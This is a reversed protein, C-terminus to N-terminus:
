SASGVFFFYFSDLSNKKILVKLLTNIERLSTIPFGDKEKEMKLRKLAVVDSTKKDRARYVVGYTGEEIRNLCQFEEVSRCGQIAPYYNPLLKQPPEEPKPSAEKESDIDELEESPERDISREMSPERSSEMSLRRGEPSSPSKELPPVSEPTAAKGEDDTDEQEGSGSTSSSSSSSSEVSENDLEEVEMEAEDDTKDLLEGDENEFNEDIAREIQHKKAIERMIKHKQKELNHRERRAELERRSVEKRLAMEREADLLKAKREDRQLREEREKETEGAQEDRERKERKMKKKDPETEM